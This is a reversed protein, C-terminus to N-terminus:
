IETELVHVIIPMIIIDVHEYGMIIVIMEQILWEPVESSRFQAPM